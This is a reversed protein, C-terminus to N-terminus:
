RRTESTLTVSSHCLGRIDEQKQEELRESIFLSANVRSCDPWMLVIFIDGQNRESIRSSLGAERRHPERNRERGREIIRKLIRRRELQCGEAGVCWWGWGRVLRRRMGEEWRICEFNIIIVDVVIILLQRSSVCCPCLTRGWLSQLHNGSVWLGPPQITSGCLPMHSFTPPEWYSEWWLWKAALGESLSIDSVTSHMTGRLTQTGIHETGWLITELPFEWVRDTPSILLFNILGV